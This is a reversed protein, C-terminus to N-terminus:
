QDTEEGKMRALARALIPNDALSTALPAEEGVSIGEPLDEADVDAPTDEADVSEEASATNDDWAQAILQAEDDEVALSDEAYATLTTEADPLLDILQAMNAADQIFPDDPDVPLLVPQAAAAAADQKEYLAVLNNYQTVIRSSKTTGASLIFMSKMARTFAVYFMRKREETSAEQHLIVVHDFELGKAGHITSVLLQANKIADSEKRKQNHARTMNMAMQNIVSEYDMMCQAMRSIYDDKSLTNQQVETMWTQIEPQYKIWWDSLFKNTKSRVMGENKPSMKVYEHLKDQITKTIVFPISAAPTVKLLDKERKLFKSFLSTAFPRASVLNAVDQNFAAKLYEEAMTVQQRSYALFCIREGADLRKQIWDKVNVNMLAPFSEKLENQNRVTTYHLQVAKQFSAATVPKLNNAQMQLKAYQNAEIDGLAINAFDLIEQNSRYNVSLQHIDFIGSAELANLAKPNAARFEYLTQSADGVIFLHSLHKKIYKLTYIFEFISNDQVEDTMVFRAALGAPETMEDIKLSSIIIELELSTMGLTNLMDIVTDYNSEVFSTLITSASQENKASEMLYYGFERAIDQNPFYFELANAITEHSSIQQNPFNHRYITDIMSAITMSNIGPYRDTINDAAANTFSLVLIDQIDVGCDRLFDIRGTLMTSKGSGAAAQTLVLPETTEIASRQQISYKAGATVGSPVTLAPITDKVQSITYLTEVMLLNANYRVLSRLSDDDLDHKLVAYLKQYATLPVMTMSELHQLLHAVILLSRHNSLLYQHLYQPLVETLGSSTEDTWFSAADTIADHVNYQNTLYDMFDAINFAPVYRGLTRNVLNEVDWTYFSTATHADQPQAPSYASIVSRDNSFQVVDDGTYGPNNNFRYVTVRYRIAFDTSPNTPNTDKRYFYRDPTVELYFHFANHVGADFMPKTDPLPLELDVQFFGEHLPTFGGSRVTLDGSTNKHKVYSLKDADQTLELALPASIRLPNFTSNLLGVANRGNGTLISSFFKPTVNMKAFTSPNLQTLDIPM